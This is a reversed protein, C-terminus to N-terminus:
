KLVAKIIFHRRAEVSPDKAWASVPANVEVRFGYAGLCKALKDRDLQRQGSSPAIPEIIFITGHRQLIPKICRVVDEIPDRNIIRRIPDHALHSLSEFFFVYNYTSLVGIFPISYMRGHYFDFFNRNRKILPDSSLMKKARQLDRRRTEVGLYTIDKRKRLLAQAFVGSVCGFELVSSNDNV